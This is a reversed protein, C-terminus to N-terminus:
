GELVFFSTKNSIIYDQGIQKNLQKKDHETRVVGVMGKVEDNKCIKHLISLFKNVNNNEDDWAFVYYIDQSSSISTGMIMDTEESFPFILYDTQNTKEFYEKLIVCRVFKCFTFDGNDFSLKEPLINHARKRLSSVISNRKFCEWGKSTLAFYQGQVMGSNDSIRMILEAELLSKYLKETSDTVMVLKKLALDFILDTNDGADIVSLLENDTIDVASVDLLQLARLPKNEPDREMQAPTNQIFLLYEQIKTMVSECTELSPGSDNDLENQFLILSDRLAENHTKM